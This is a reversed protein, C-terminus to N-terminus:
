HTVSVLDRDQGISIVQGGAGSAFLSRLPQRARRPNNLWWLLGYEPRLACPTAIAALWSEAMLQEGNWRGRQVVLLGIRAQAAASIFVRGGWAVGGPFSLMEHGDLIIRANDYAHWSWDRSASIPGMIRERFVEPLSPHFVPLLALANVWVDNYEWFM